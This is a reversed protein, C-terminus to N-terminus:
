IETREWCSANAAERIGLIDYFPRFHLYFQSGPPHLFFLSVIHDRCRFLGPFRTQHGVEQKKRKMRKQKGNQEEDGILVDTAQPQTDGETSGDKEKKVRRM